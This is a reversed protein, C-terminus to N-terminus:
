NEILEDIRHLIKELFALLKPTPPQGQSNQLLTINSEFSKSHNSPMNKRKQKVSDYFKM